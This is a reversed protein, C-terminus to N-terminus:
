PEQTDLYRELRKLLPQIDEAWRKELVSRTYAFAVSFLAIGVWLVHALRGSGGGGGGEDGGAGGGGRIPGDAGGMAQPETQLKLGDGTTRVRIAAESTSPLFVTMEGVSAEDDLLIFRLHEARGVVFSGVYIQDDSTDEELMGDDRLKLPEAGEQDVDVMPKSLRGVSRDDVILTIQISDSDGLDEGGPAAQVVLPENSTTGATESGLGWDGVSMRVMAIDAAPLVVTVGGLERDYYRANLEVMEAQPVDLIGWYVGEGGRDILQAELGGSTYITMGNLEDAVGVVRLRLRILGERPREGEEEAIAQIVDDSTPSTAEATGPMAPANLDIVVGPDGDTTKLQFTAGGEAPLSVEFTGIQDGQDLISFTLNQARIATVAAVLIGDDPVDGEISGDDTFRVPPVGAQDIVLTPATLREIARDDLAVRIPLQTDQAHAAALLALLMM